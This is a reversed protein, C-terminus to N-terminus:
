QNPLEYDAFQERLTVKHIKGTATHPLEDVFVVDDPLWWKAVRESMWALLTDKDVATDPATVAILLPREAWRKHAVGIVAAEAVAPHGVAVNELEISSVWEGGSKIVDKTRDTIQMYGDADITAVDGTEFWGNADYADSDELRYYSESVWWGRVKLSGFDTGNHPLENDEEDVIKMDVGFVATGQKALVVDREAASLKDAGPKPSNLTGLPSMETMGWAHHTYVGHSEQFEKMISLPCASGGVVTRELSPVKKGSERLYTLLGLWVTPVGLAITVGESEILHQLTEGDGMKPGPFVMKSGAIPGAYPTGWANAHFMPVVPLICDRHSLNLANPMCGGYGHLVTSRHDFLVGKPNGTTGSTYCLASATTEDLEPWDFDAGNTAVLEEYCILELSSEPMAGRGGMVILRPISAFSDVLTEMLPVFMPDLFIAQDEAHNVIYTLQDQFLRPNVTHLVYGSCSVAYYLEMHRYDNWAFTAVRAGRELGMADLANGLQRARRFVDAYICRHIPEESTVSVVEVAGYNREAFRMIETITLPIDMMLGRM